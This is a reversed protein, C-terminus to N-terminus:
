QLIKKVSQSIQLFVDYSSKLNTLSAAILEKPNVVEPEAEIEIAGSGTLAPAETRETAMLKPEEEAPTQEAEFDELIQEKADNSLSVADNIYKQAKQMNTDFYGASIFQGRELKTLDSDIKQWRTEAVKILEGTQNLLLFNTIRSIKANYDANRYDKITQAEAKVAEIDPLDDITSTQEEYFIKASELYEFSAKQFANVREDKTKIAKFSTELGDIEKLSLALADKIVQKRAELEKILRESETLSKDDKVEILQNVSASLDATENEAAAAPQGCLMILSALSVAILPKLNKM